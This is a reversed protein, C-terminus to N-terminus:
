AETRDYGYNWGVEKVQVARQGCEFCIRNWYTGSASGSGEIAGNAYIFKGDRYTFETAYVEGASYHFIINHHTESDRCRLVCEKIGDRGDLDIFVMKWTSVDAKNEFVNELLGSM